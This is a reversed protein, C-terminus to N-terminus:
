FRGTLVLGNFNRGFAPQMRVRAVDGSRLKKIGLRYVIGGVVTIVVGAAIAAGAARTARDDFEIGETNKAVQKGLLDCKSGEKISIKSSCNTRNYEEATELLLGEYQTGRVTFAISTIAGALTVVGGAVMLGIGKRRLDNAQAEDKVLLGGENDAPAPPPAPGVTEPPPLPEPPPVNEPAVPPPAVDAPPAPDGPPPVMDGPPGEVSQPIEADIPREDPVATPTAPARPTSPSASTASPAAPAPTAPAAPPTQAQAQATGFFLVTLAAVTQLGRQGRTRPIQIAM